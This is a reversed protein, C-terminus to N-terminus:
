EITVNIRNGKVFVIEFENWFNGHWEQWMIDGIFPNPYDSPSKSKFTFDVGNYYQMLCGINWGNKIIERSMRIEKQEITDVFGTIHHSSDFIKCQMLYEVAERDASFIYSQVHAADKPSNQSGRSDGTANITSGFLKINDKLGNVYIDTWRGKHHLFPGIISSNAFIFNDYKQYMNDKALCESWAGFDYGINARNMTKVYPPFPLDFKVQMNNAIIYFDVDPDEFICFQVFHKVRDTVEHFVYLVATKGM